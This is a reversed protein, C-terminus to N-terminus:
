FLLIKGYIWGIIICEIVGFLPVAFSATYWDALQYIYM